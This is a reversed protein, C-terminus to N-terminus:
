SFKIVFEYLFLTHAWLMWYIYTWATLRTTVCENEDEFHFFVFKVLELDEYL